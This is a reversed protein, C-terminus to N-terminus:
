LIRRGLFRLISRSCRVVITYNFEFCTSYSGLPVCYYMGWYMGRWFETIAGM